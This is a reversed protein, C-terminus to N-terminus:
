KSTAPLKVHRPKWPRFKGALDDRRTHRLEEVIHPHHALLWDELEDLTDVSELVAIPIEVKDLTRSM